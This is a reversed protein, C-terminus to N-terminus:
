TADVRRSEPGSSVGPRPPLGAACERCGMATGLRTTFVLGTEHWQEGACRREADQQARQAVLARVCLDPLAITRRSKMTKTDGGARVSRWVELYPPIPPTVDPQGELHLHEWRLARLEETRAGTLLSMVIYPHMRDCATKTISDDAQQAAMAKSPRGPLGAPVDTLEVVNRKVKDRSM